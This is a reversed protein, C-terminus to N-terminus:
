SSLEGWGGRPKINTIVRLKLQIRRLIFHLNRPIIGTIASQLGVYLTGFIPADSLILMIIGIIASQLGVYLTGFIPADSLILLLQLFKKKKVFLQGWPSPSPSIDILSERMSLKICVLFINV